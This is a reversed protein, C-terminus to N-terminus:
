KQAPQKNKLSFGVKIVISSAIPKGAQMAPTFRWQRVAEVASEDLGMGLGKSVHADLVEGKTGIRVTVWVEGQLGADTAQKTYRAPAKTVVKPPSAETTSTVLRGIDDVSLQKPPTQAEEPEPLLGIALIGTALTSAFRYSARRMPFM